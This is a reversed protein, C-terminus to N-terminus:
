NIIQKEEGRLLRRINDAHRVYVLVLLVAALAVLAVDSLRFVLTMVLFVVMGSLSCISIRKTLALLVAVAVATVAAGLPFTMWAVAFSSAVGKGGRFGAFAPFCHGIVVFLGGIYGGLTGMVLRGLLVAAVAKLFDGVFTVAGPKFGFVRVMNTSGANGSGHDRVDDHFFLRSTFLAGNFCGCLYAAVAAYLYDLHSLFAYFGTVLLYM